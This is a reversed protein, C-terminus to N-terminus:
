WPDNNDPHRGGLVGVSPLFGFDVRGSSYRNHFYDAFLEEWNQFGRMNLTIFMGLAFESGGPSGGRKGFLQTTNDEYVFELGDIASGHYVRVHTLLKTKSTASTFIVEQPESGPLQSLGLKIGRFAMKGNTLKLSSAKSALLGFDSIDQNGGGFSKICLRLKSKRQSEPL